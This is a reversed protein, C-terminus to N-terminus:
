YDFVEKLEIKLEDFAYCTLQDDLQYVEYIDIGKDKFGYQYICKKIPDVLWYEKCGGLMFSNLKDVMDRSRTSPSLVEIVLTPIGSYRGKDDIYETTDCSILLDPQIVDPTKLDDKYITVDFPALFVKCSKGKLFVKLIYYINGVAEQHFSSPSTQMIIEGNIYELRGEAQSSIELFEEYSVMKSGIDYAPAEERLMMYHMIDNVYPSMRVTAQGNKTIIIQHNESVYDLYKGMNKKFQTATITRNEEM